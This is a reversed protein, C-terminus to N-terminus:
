FYRLHIIAPKLAWDGNASTHYFGHEPWVLASLCIRYLIEIFSRLRDKRKDSRGECESTLAILSGRSVLEFLQISVAIAVQGMIFYPPFRLATVQTLNFFSSFLLIHLSQYHAQVYKNYSCAQPARNQYREQTELRVSSTSRAREARIDGNLRSRARTRDRVPATTKSGQAGASMAPMKM